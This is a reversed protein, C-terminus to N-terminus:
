DKIWKGSYLQITNQSIQYSYIGAPLENTKISISRDFGKELILKGSFDFLRFLLNDKGSDINLYDKGPNPYINFDAIKIKHPNEPISSILGNKDFKLFVIDRTHVDPNEYFDWFGCSAICGGDPTALLSGLYYKGYGGFNKYFFIDGSLNTKYISILNDSTDSIMKTGGVFLTDLTLFDMQPGYESTDISGYTQLNYFSGEDDMIMFALDFTGSMIPPMATNYDGLLFYRTEDIDRSRWHQFREEYFYIITDYEFNYDFYTINNYAQCQYKGIEPMDRIAYFISYNTTDAKYNIENGNQDIEWFISRMENVIPFNRFFLFSNNHNICFTGMADNRDPQGYISDKIINLNEDLWIIYLQEDYTTTDLASGFLIIEGNSETLIRLPSLAYGDRFDLTISDINNLNADATFYSKSYNLYFNYEEYVPDGMAYSYFYVENEEFYQINTLVDNDPSSIWKIFTSQGFSPFIFLFPIIQLLQKM